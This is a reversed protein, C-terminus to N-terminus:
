TSPALVPGISVSPRVGADQLGALPTVLVTGPRVDRLVSDIVGDAHVLVFTATKPAFAAFLAGGVDLGAAATGNGV